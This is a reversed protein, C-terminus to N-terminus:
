SNWDGSINVQENFVNSNKIVAASVSTGKEQRAAQIQGVLEVIDEKFERDQLMHIMLVRQLEELAGDDAPDQQAQVLANEAADDGRFRTRVREVLRGM